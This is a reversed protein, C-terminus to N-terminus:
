VRVAALLTVDDNLPRGDRHDDLRKLIRVVMEEPTGGAAERVARELRGDGFEDAKPDLAETVGDTFAVLWAGPDLRVERVKRVMGSFEATLFLGTAPLREIRGESSICIAAPHGANVYRLRGDAYLRGYFLSAYRGGSFFDVGQMMLRVAEEPEPDIRRAADLTSRLMGSYMAASVGHGVVDAIAFVVSGDREVLWHYLDGGLADCSRYRGAIKWGAAELSCRPLLSEQFAKARDLDDALARAYAEKARRERQLALCRDVLARLVKREFPKFLFYFAGEELSRYLKQDPQSVSGTILIVDTEPATAKVSQCLEYGDGSAHLHVDILAVHFPEHALLELAEEPSAAVVVEHAPQLIRTLTHRIAADDDVVLVRDKM